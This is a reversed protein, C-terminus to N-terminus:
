IVQRFLPLLSDVEDDSVNDLAKILADKTNNITNSIIQSFSTLSGPYNEYENFLLEAEMRALNRLKEVVQNVIVEKNNFFEEEDLLMAASIEYSSCIVGCKNASSDKIIFVGAEKFLNERAQPTIFINAGEVILPSSPTGDPKLFSKYNHGDITNPRGGAPIFADAEVRFHMTNRMKIGEETNSSYLKGNPGLRAVDFEGISLDNNVLRLLEHHDLGDPDEASGSHDAMGVIKANEGYERLLIKIENGALDGNPGGTMKITFSSNKPDIGLARRLAVELYVNVGESTVGFEKHNIGARPKSSMFAAPTDYGRKAARAVIWNIDQPVVQEDPGLYLVEKKGLYDVVNKRTEPSDVILDLMSDTFAKVSKRTIFKKGVDSFESQAILCVAKSGGEPIDKNKLQQAFALSYCEDYQRASELAFQETTQPTVIRLGGRAIDRFRVHFGNFRRGHVFIVGYPLERTPENTEEMEMVRPDLRFGLAYRDELYINTRLTHHVIDIMKNLLEVAISDEISNEISDRLSETRSRFADDSLQSHSPDFRELFLDAINSVHSIYRKRTVTEFINAKSYLVPHHKAMIAHTLAVFATIIEGRPIGLWPYQDFVLDMTVPDLWKIRKLKGTINRELSEVTIQAKDDDRPVACLRLMTVNGNSDDSVVDLHARVVDFRELHLIRTANELTVQPLSNAVTIDFWFHRKKNNNSTTDFYQDSFEEEISLDMGETGSVESFMYRQKLFRRPNSKDLHSLYSFSCKKMYDLLPERELYPSPQPHNKDHVFEGKQIREAYNLINAGVDQLLFPAHKEFGFTFMNLTMTEDNSTYVVVRSLPLSGKVNHDWPLDEVLELLEGPKLPGPRVFTLCVRGDPLISKTNMYL